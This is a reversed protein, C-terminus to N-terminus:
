DRWHKQFEEWMKKIVKENHIRAIQSSKERNTWSNGWFLCHRNKLSSDKPTGLLTRSIPSAWYLVILNFKISHSYSPVSVQKHPLQIILLPMGEQWGESLIGTAWLIGMCQGSSRKRWLMSSNTFLIVCLCVCAHWCLLHCKYFVQLKNWLRMRLLHLCIIDECNLLRIEEAWVLHAFTWWRVCCFCRICM